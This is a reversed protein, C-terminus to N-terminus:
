AAKAFTYKSTRKKDYNLPENMLAHAIAWFVDAHGTERSRDAVFTMSGGKKTTTHRIALFSALIEKQEVDWEIREESVVDIMKMVLQNKSQPNYHIAHAQRPAFDQVMEYVGHGIGTTDIGIHTFKYRKFLDEILKAQHKWNMGQWYFTALVRFVEPAMMPPAIIVFTSTDGSRAPDFGGWVERDGFPRPANPDHDEWLHIDAGCKELQHYKFVSAGSDVFMCLYLMNFTDPNYRNRLKEISALNFGGKIADELTIVYRWQGDPCDRGGDRLEDFSPFEINKRKPDNGRWEDGMWFPYAPHTKASPTSFYTTRWKDHTAMASAVENLRKFDPVWFYEDCYLHGSYSQATNKNTSLFRLEAGNSLRIPNGTLTVGFFHEAINVIYSRFVEAQPKSASLFIQPNGTLVANEFAEFAFYWTAGIQRSKLINRIQKALNNRLHKQYGFLTEDVFQQFDEKTLTSIDNKRYRKKKKPEDESFPIYDGGSKEQAKIEALKEKHKNEQAMLKIHHAILRDLEDLELSTKNNRESLVAIRRNIAEIVSEHNLMDAWHWKEAWYYIIRRNPLNLERAIEAPTYRRLYLSRAVNILEDSYKAM